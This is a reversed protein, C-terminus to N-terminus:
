VVPGMKCNMRHRWLSAVNVFSKGCRNCSARGSHVARHHSRHSWPVREHCGGIPCVYLIRGDGTLLQHRM